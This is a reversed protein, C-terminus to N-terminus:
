SARTVGQVHGGGEQDMGGSEGYALVLEGSAGCFRDLDLLVHPGLLPTGGNAGRAGQQFFPARQSSAATRCYGRLGGAEPGHVGAARCTHKGLALNDLNTCLPQELIM